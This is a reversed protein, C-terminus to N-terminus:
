ALRLREDSFGGFYESDLCGYAKQRIRNGHLLTNGQFRCFRCNAEQATPIPDFSRLQKKLHCGTVRVYIKNKCTIVRSINLQTLFQESTSLSELVHLYRSPNGSCLFT